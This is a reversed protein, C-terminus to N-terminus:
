LVIFLCLTKLWPNNSNYIFASGSSPIPWRQEYRISLPRATLVIAIERLRPRGHKFPILGGNPSLPSFPELGGNSIISDTGAVGHSRIIRM